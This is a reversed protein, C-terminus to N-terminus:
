RESLDALEGLTSLIVNLIQSGNQNYSAPHLGKKEFVPAMAPDRLDYMRGARILAADVAPRRGAFMTYTPTGLVASERSMTGGAGITLDALALLSPGDIAREPVTIGSEYPVGQERTRPLLVVQVNQQLRAENLVEDFRSNGGRHYLAGEPPPRFVAIVGGSDLGLEALVAKNPEFGDLYLEEKFGVYRVVNSARAGFRAIDESPFAEPVIVRQAFRFSIHNAPQHEYDMMTVAPIGLSRAAVIQAYSGHSFAVDPRKSRAFRGLGIARGSISFGKAARGAPSPGGIVRVDSWRRRALEMTQAHDRATLIVDHSRAQLARVVPEMLPVHPSNALDIWVLM